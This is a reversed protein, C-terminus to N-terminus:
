KGKKKGGHKTNDTERLKGGGGPGAVTTNNPSKMFFTPPLDMCFSGFIVKSILPHFNIISGNVKNHNAASKCKSL